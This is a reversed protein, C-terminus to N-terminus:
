PCGTQKPEVTPSLDPVQTFDGALPAINWDINMGALGSRTSMGGHATVRWVVQERERLAEKSNIGTMDHM